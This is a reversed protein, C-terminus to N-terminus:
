LTPEARAPSESDVSNADEQLLKEAFGAPLARDLIASVQAWSKAPMHELGGGDWEIKCDSAQLAPDAMLRLQSIDAAQTQQEIVPQLRILTDPHLKITMQQPLLGAQLAEQLLALMEGDGNQAIFKPMIRRLCQSALGAAKLTLINQIESLNGFLGSLSKQINEAASLTKQEIGALAEKRGAEQGEAFAQAKIEEVQKANFVPEQAEKAKGGRPQPAEFEQDFIFKKNQSSESQSAM